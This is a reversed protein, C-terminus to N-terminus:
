HSPVAAVRGFSGFRRPIPQRVPKPTLIKAPHDGRVSDTRQSRVDVVLPPRYKAHRNRAMRQQGKTFRSVSGAAEEALIIGAFHAKIDVVGVELGPGLPAGRPVGVRHARRSQDALFYRTTRTANLHTRQAEKRSASETRRSRDCEAIDSCQSRCVPDFKIVPLTNDQRLADLVLPCPNRASDEVRCRDHARAAVM